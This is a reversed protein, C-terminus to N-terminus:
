DICNYINEVKRDNNWYICDEVISQYFQLPEYKETRANYPNFKFKKLFYNKLIRLSEFCYTTEDEPSTLIVAQLIIHSWITALISDINKDHALYVVLM